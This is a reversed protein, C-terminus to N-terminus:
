RAGRHCHRPRSGKTATAARAAAARVRCLSSRPRRRRRTAAPAARHLRASQATCGGRKHRRPAATATARAEPWSRPGRQSRAWAPTPTQSQCRRRRCWSRQRPFGASTRSRMRQRLSRRRAHWVACIQIKKNRKTEKASTCPKTSQLCLFCPAALPLPPFSLSPAFASASAPFPPVLCLRVCLRSLSPSPLPARVPPFPLSLASTCVSAPFLHSATGDPEKARFAM